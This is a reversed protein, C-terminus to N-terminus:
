FFFYTIAVKRNQVYTQLCMHISKFIDIYMCVCIYTHTHRLVSILMQAKTWCRQRGPFALQKRCSCIVRPDKGVDAARSREVGTSWYIFMDGLSFDLARYNLALTNNIVHEWSTFLLLILLCGESFIRENQGRLSHRFMLNDKSQLVM